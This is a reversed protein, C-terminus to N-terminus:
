YFLDEIKLYVKSLVKKVRVGSGPGYSLLNLRIFVRRDFNVLQYITYLIAVRPTM